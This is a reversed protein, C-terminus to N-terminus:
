YAEEEEGEEKEEELREVKMADWKRILYDKMEEFTQADREIFEEFEDDTLDKTSNMIGAVRGYYLPVMIDLLRKKPLMWTQYFIAFNYITKVWLEVPFEFGDAGREALKELMKLNNKGIINGWVPGYLRLGAMFQDFLHAKNIAFPRPRFIIPEGVIPVPESGRVKKWYNEYKSMLYFITGVVERFMPALHETPDKEMHLKAGLRAQVIKFKKVIATTTLWIDIGFRAIDTDWVDEKVYSSILSVSFAFDGGIPQRVRKGYLARTLTYAVTNTITADYKYRLYYPAVLDYGNEIVPAGLNKIWQPTISRLDADLLIVGRAKLFLAAEFIARVASGKGPIGRYITVLKSVGDPVQAIFAVERTDDTSGGDSVMLLAKKNGYFESLGEGATSIVHGITSENNFCPIGVVIDVEGVDELKRIAKERLATMYRM